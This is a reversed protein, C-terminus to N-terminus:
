RHHREHAEPIALPSYGHQTIIRCMGLTVIAGANGIRIKWTDRTEKSLQSHRRRQVDMEIAGTSVNPGTFVVIARGCVPDGEGFAEGVAHAARPLVGPALGDGRRVDTPGDLRHEERRCFMEGDFVEFRLKSVPVRRKLCLATCGAEGPQTATLRAVLDIDAAELQALRSDQM